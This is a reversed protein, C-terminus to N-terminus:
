ATEDAPPLYIKFTSGKGVASEVRISGGSQRIIGFVTSLGLGTGRGAEKTTFFPEFIREQTARDMGIGTDSVALMVHPGPAVGIDGEAHAADLEVAAIEITLRGGSPMADRANIVLNLIVQQIHDADAQIKPLDCALVVRVDIDEGVLRRIMNDMDGVVRDLDLVRPQLVRPRSFTLLQRTLTVAREGAKTIEELEARMPDGPQVRHMLLDTYTLIVTLLNNFDHAIGGALRGVAEMKQMQRLQEELVRREREIRNRSEIERQLEVYREYLEENVRRVERGVSRASLM